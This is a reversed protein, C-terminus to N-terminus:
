CGFGLGCVFLFESFPVSCTVRGTFVGDGVGAVPFTGVSLTELGFVKEREAAGKRLAIAEELKVRWEARAQASEAYLTYLGGLRGIYNITCPYVM